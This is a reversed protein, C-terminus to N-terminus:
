LTNNLSLSPEETHAHQCREGQTQRHQCDKITEHLDAERRTLITPLSPIAYILVIESQQCGASPPVPSLPISRNTNNQPRYNDTRNTFYFLLAFSQATIAPALPQTQGSPVSRSDTHQVVSLSFHKNDSPKIPTDTCSVNGTYNLCPCCTEKNNVWAWATM